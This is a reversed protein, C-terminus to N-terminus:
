EIEALTAAQAARAIVGRCWDPDADAIRSQWGPPLPGFRAELVVRLAERAEEARGRAEGEARGQAEGRAEARAEAEAIWDDIITGEALMKTDERFLTELVRRPFDRIAIRLAYALLDGRVEPPVDATRILDLEERVTEETPNDECLVLLPALEWLEGSRIREAHEWLRVTAFRYENGLPGLESEYRDPFVTRGGRELYIVLLVVKRGLQRGLAGAKAFWEPLVRSDPQLQYELYLAPTPPEVPDDAGVLFVHDARQEPVNISTDEHRVAQREDLGVLRLLAGPMERLLAKISADVPSVAEPM